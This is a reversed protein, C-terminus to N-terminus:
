AAPPLDDPGPPPQEPGSATSLSRAPAVCNIASKWAALLDPRNPFRFRNFRDLARVAQVVEDAVKDLEPAGIGPRDGEIGRVPTRPEGMMSRASTLFELYPITGRGLGLKQRLEPLDRSPRHAVRILHALQARRMTGRVDRKRLTASLTEGHADRQQTARRIVRALTEELRTVAAVYGPNPDPHARSFDLARAGMELKRRIKANV